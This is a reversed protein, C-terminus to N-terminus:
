ICCLPRTAAAARILPSRLSWAVTVTAAANTSLSSTSLWCQRTLMSFPHSGNRWAPGWWQANRVFSWMSREFITWRSGDIVKCKKHYMSNRKALLWWLMVHPQAECCNYLSLLVYLELWWGNRYFIVERSLYFLITRRNGKRIISMFHGDTKDDSGVHVVGAVLKFTKTNLSSAEMGEEVSYGHRGLDLRAFMWLMQVM